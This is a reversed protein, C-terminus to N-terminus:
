VRGCSEMINLLTTKVIERNYENEMINRLCTGKKKLSDSGVKYAELMKDALNSIHERENKYHYKLLLNDPFDETMCIDSVIATRSYSFAMIISGSNMSSRTDYPFVLVDAMKLFAALELSGVYHPYIIIDSEKSIENISKLYSNPVVKGAIILRSKMKDKVANYADVLVEINKYRRIMGLFLFTFCDDKREEFFGTGPYSFSYYDGIYNPHPLYRLKPILRDPSISTNEALILDSHKSHLIIVDAVDALFRLKSISNEICCADHSIKNHYTWIIKVDCEKAKQLLQIDTDTLIDEIWNLYIFKVDVVDVIRQRLFAYDVVDYRSRVFSQIYGIYSVGDPSYPYFAVTERMDFRM